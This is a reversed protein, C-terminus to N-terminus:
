IGGEISGDRWWSGKWSGGDPSLDKVGRHGSQARRQCPVTQQGYDIIDSNYNSLTSLVSFRELCGQYPSILGPKPTGTHRISFTKVTEQTRDIPTATYEIFGQVAGSEGCHGSQNYSAEYSTEDLITRIDDIISVVKNLAYWIIPNDSRQGKQHSQDILPIDNDYWYCVDSGRRNGRRRLFGHEVFRANGSSSRWEVMSINHHYHWSRKQVDASTLNFSFTRVPPRSVGMSFHSDTSFTITLMHGM